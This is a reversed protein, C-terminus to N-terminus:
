YRVMYRKAIEKGESYVKVIYIGASLQSLDIQTEFTTSVNEEKKEIVTQGLVNYLKIQINKEKLNMLQITVFDTAPNPFVSLNDEQEVQAHIGTVMCDTYENLVVLSDTLATPYPVLTDVFFTFNALTDFILIPIISLQTTDISCGSLPLIGNTTIHTKILHPDPYLTTNPYLSGYIFLSGDNKRIFSNPFFPDTIGVRISNPKLVGDTWDTIIIKETSNTKLLAVYGTDAKLLQIGDLAVGNKDGRFASVSHRQPDLNCITVGQSIGNTLLLTKVYGTSDVFWDNLKVSATTDFFSISQRTVGSSDLDVIFTRGMGNIGLLITSDSTAHIKSLKYDEYQNLGRVRYWVYGGNSNFKIVYPYPDCVASCNPQVNGSIYISGNPSETIDTGYFRQNDQNTFQTIWQTQGQANFKILAVCSQVSFSNFHPTALICFGGDRTEICRVPFLGSATTDKISKQWVINGAYDLRLVLIERPSIGARSALALFDGNACPIMQVAYERLATGYRKEFSYPQAKVNTTILLSVLLIHLHIILTSTKM